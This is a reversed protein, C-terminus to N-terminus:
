REEKGQRRVMRQVLLSPVFIGLSIIGGVFLFNVLTGRPAEGSPVYGEEMGRRRRWRESQRRQTNLHGERDFHPIENEESRGFPSQGPGM